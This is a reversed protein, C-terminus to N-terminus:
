TEAKHKTDKNFDYEVGSWEEGDASRLTDKPVWGACPDIVNGEDDQAVARARGILDTFHRTWVGTAGTEDFVLKGDQDQIPVGM